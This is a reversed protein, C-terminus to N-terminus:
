RAAVRRGKRGGGGRRNAPPMSAARSPSAEVAPGSPTGIAAHPPEVGAYAVGADAREAWASSWCQHRDLTAGPAAEEAELADPGRRPSMASPHPDGALALFSGMDANSPSGAEPGFGCDLGQVEAAACLDTREADAVPGASLLVYGDQERLDPTLSGFTGPDAGVIRDWDALADEVSGDKYVSLRAWGPSLPRVSAYDVSKFVIGVRPPPASPAPLTPSPAAVRVAEGRLARLATDLGSTGTTLGSPATAGSVLAALDGGPGPMSAPLTPDPPPAAGLAVCLADPFDALAASTSAQVDALRVNAVFVVKRGARCTVKTLDDARAQTASAVALAAIWAVM